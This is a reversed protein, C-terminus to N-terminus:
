SKYLGHQKSIERLKKPPLMAVKQRLKAIPDIAINLLEYRGVQQEMALVLNELMRRKFRDGIAERDIRVGNIECPEFDAVDLVITRDAKLYEHFIKNLRKNTDGGKGKRAPTRVRQIRRALDEAEGIYVIEKPEKETRM